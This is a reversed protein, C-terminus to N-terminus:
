IIRLKRILEASNRAGELDIGHDAATRERSLLTHMAKTMASQENSELIGLPIYKAIREARMRQEHNQAFPLVAAPIQSTLIDMCTNYGAMSIMADGATLLDTFDAAFRKITISDHGSATSRLTEFKDDDLFPGSLMLLKSNQPPLKIFSELVSQMLPGGVKGGGASAILLKDHDSVRLDARIKDRVNKAPKRAAFGTYQCPIRIQDFVQFTEDLAAIKPDSHILLLDFYKNLYKVVRAEHKGGDDREVLIDRLSCIVKVDGFRGKKIADLIPLLEFRFAKRGFPFLEILFVDPKEEEFIKFLTATREEKVEGLERDADTPMIGGFNENMCLGPLQRYEVNPPLPQDPREGGAVFIVEERDLARAIELSRFFHGMGLVHQCYHIVKM